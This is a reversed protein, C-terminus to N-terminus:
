GPGQVRVETLKEPKRHKLRQTVVGLLRVSTRTRHSRELKGKRRESPVRKM